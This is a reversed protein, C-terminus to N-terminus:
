QPHDYCAIRFGVNYVCQYPAYDLRFSSRARVPRDYWSGGRVVRRGGGPSNRGDDARYPYPRYLSRTWEWVNGHMDHLGWSNAAYRAVDATVLHGDDFRDDRPALDPSLPRWGEYALKRLNRDALNAFPAFDSGLEGYSFPTAAGARCAYEWEAETPLDVELGSRESLWRCFEM